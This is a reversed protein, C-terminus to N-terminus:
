TTAIAFKMIPSANAALNDNYAVVHAVEIAFGYHEKRARTNHGSAAGWIASFDGKSEFFYTDVPVNLGPLVDINWETGDQMITGLIAEPEHRFLLGLSGPTILYGTAKQLAANALRNTFHFNKDDFQITKDQDNFITHESMKMVRNQLGTNGVVHFNGYFDNANAIPTMEGIIEDEKALAAVVVDLTLTNGLLDAYVQSKNTNLVALAATDQDAAFQNFYKMFKRQFDAQISHENNLFMSPIITFGWAYTTFSITYLQGTNESDPITVSRTSGITVTEADFVPIKVDRGVATKAREFLEPSIISDAESNGLAFVDFAGYRSPRLSWKDITPSQVRLEQMRTNVLSM